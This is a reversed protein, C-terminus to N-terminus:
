LGSRRPDLGDQEQAVLAPESLAGDRVEEWSGLPAPEDFRDFRGERADIHEMPHPRPKKMDMNLDRINKNEKNEKEQVGNENETEQIGDEEEM